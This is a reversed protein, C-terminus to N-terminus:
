PAVRGNANFSASTMPMLDVWFNEMKEAVMEIERQPFSPFHTGERMTRLSLFNMLSRANMTVYMSSYITVPLVMRAVERAVGAELMRQYSAYAEESVARVERDVLETQEPTGPVFEYHGTKGIQVLNRDPGPVYFVPRLERYRGSEENYSAIRHRMFERFVFIPAHVYFTMSNHEFPSGHRDRMLYNILGKDRDTADAENGGLSQEGQTSVRAAFLVDSDSASSRVLEVTVDSRFEVVSM